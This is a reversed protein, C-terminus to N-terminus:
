IQGEGKHQGPAQHVLRVRHQLLRLQGGEGLGGEHGLVRVVKFSVFIELYFM